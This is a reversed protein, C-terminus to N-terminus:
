VPDGIKFLFQGAPLRLTEIAPCLEAFMSPEFQGFM